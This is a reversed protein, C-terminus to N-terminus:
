KLVVMDKEKQIIHAKEVTWKENTKNATVIAKAEGESGVLKIHYTAKGESGYIKIDSALPALSASSINGIQKAVESNSRLFNSAVEFGESNGIFFHFGAFFAVLLSVTILLKKKM